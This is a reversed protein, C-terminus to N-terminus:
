SIYLTDGDQVISYGQPIYLTNGIQVPYEWAPQTDATLTAAASFGAVKKDVFQTREAAAASLSTRSFNDRWRLLWAARAKSVAAKSPKSLAIAIRNRIRSRVTLTDATGFSGKIAIFLRPLWLRLKKSDLAHSSGRLTINSKDLRLAARKTTGGILRAVNRAVTALHGVLRNQPARKLGARSRQFVRSNVICRRLNKVIVTIVARMFVGLRQRAYAGRGAYCKAKDGWYIGIREPIAWVARFGKALASTRFLAFFRSEGPCRIREPVIISVMVSAWTSARMISAAASTKYLRPQKLNLPCMLMYSIYLRNNMDSLKVKASQAISTIGSMAAAALARLRAAVRVLIKMRGSLAIDKAGQILTYFKHLLNM